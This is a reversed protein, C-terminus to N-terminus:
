SSPLKSKAQPPRIPVVRLGSNERDMGGRRFIDHLVGRNYPLEYAFCAVSRRENALRTVVSM